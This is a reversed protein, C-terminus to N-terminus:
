PSRNPRVLAGKQSAETMRAMALVQKHTPSYGALAYVTAMDGFTRRYVEAGPVSAADNIVQICLHGTQAYLRKLSEIMEDPSLTNPRNRRACVMGRRTAQSARLARHSPVFGIRTYAGVLGGFRRRYIEACPLHEADNILTGSLHGHEALLESLGSLMDADLMRRFRKAINRQALDFTARTVMPALACETRLWDERPLRSRHGDLYAKSKGFVQVGVYKENTLVQEVRSPSWPSGYEAPVGEANLTRAVSARSLGNVLFLRFIRKVVAVEEPPGSVLVIRDSTVAKWESQELTPGPEGNAHVIRRRLAFGPPGGQWFGKAALRRQAHAVKVSLDRSYEGAMARKMYKAFGAMLSGDNDFLEACYEVRVGALKCIFEYHASEDPDQFRGWRSVDYVLVVSYDAQGAVVDALLQKLGDRKEIRVGSIGADTYTKVIELRRLQAYAANAASQHEISYNQHERSMRVYQAARLRGPRTTDTDDM